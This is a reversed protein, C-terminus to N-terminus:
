VKKITASCDMYTYGDMWAKKSGVCTYRAANGGSLGSTFYYDSSSFLGYALTLQTIGDAFTYVIEGEAGVISGKRSDCEACQVNQGSDIRQQLIDINGHQSESSSYTLVGGSQNDIKPRVYDYVGCSDAFPSNLAVHLMTRLDAFPEDPKGNELHEPLREPEVVLLRSEPDYRFAVDICDGRVTGENGDFGKLHDRRLFARVREMQEPSVDKIQLEGSM